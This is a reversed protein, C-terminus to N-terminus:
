ALVIHAAEQPRRAMHLRVLLVAVPELGRARSGHRADRGTLSQAQAHTHAFSRICYSTRVSMRARTDARTGHLTIHTTQRNNTSSTQAHTSHSTHRTDHTHGREHHREHHAIWFCTHTFTIPSPNSSQNIENLVGRSRLQSIKALQLGVHRAGEYPIGLM